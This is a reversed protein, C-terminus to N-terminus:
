YFLPPKKSGFRKVYSGFFTVWILLYLLNFDGATNTPSLEVFTLNSVLLPIFVWTWGLPEPSWLPYTSFLVLTRSGPTVLRSM